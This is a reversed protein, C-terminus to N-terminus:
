LSRSAIGLFREEAQETLRYVMKGSAAEGRTILSPAAKALADITEEDIKTLIRIMEGYQWGFPHTGLYFIISAMDGSNAEPFELRIAPLTGKDKKLHSRRLYDLSQRYGEYWDHTVALAEYEPSEPLPGDLVADIFVKPPLYKHEDVYHYVLDPAAYARRKAGFLWRKTSGFARIEATGLSVSEEGYSITPPDAAASCFECLHCGRTGNVKTRCFRELREVFGPPAEGRPHPHRASLWGINFTGRERGIYAYRSLDANYTM